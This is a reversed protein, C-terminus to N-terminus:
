ELRIHSQLWVETGQPRSRSNNAPAVEPGFGRATIIFSSSTDLFIPEFGVVTIGDAGRIAVDNRLITMKEVQCEPPRKYTKTDGVLGAPLTYINTGNVDWQTQPNQWATAAGNMPSINADTFTSDYTAATSSLDGSLIAMRKLVSLECHRLAMDAAQTALETTRIHGSVGETSSAHRLSTATLMSIIALMILVVILVVGHPVPRSGTGILPTYKACVLM